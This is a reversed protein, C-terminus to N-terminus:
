SPGLSEAGELVAVAVGSGAGAAGVLRVAVGSAELRISRAQVSLAVLSAPKLTSREVSPTVKVM